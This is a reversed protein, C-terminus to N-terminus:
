RMVWMVGIRGRMHFYWMHDRDVGEGGRRREGGGAKLELSIARM